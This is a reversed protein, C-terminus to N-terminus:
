AIAKTYFSRISDIMFEIQGDNLYQHLPLTMISKGYSESNVLDGVKYGLASAAKQLHLPVKYHIKAEIGRDILYELLKDRDLFKAMYLSFTHKYGDRRLPLLVQDPLTSLGDDMRKALKNRAEVTQDVTKLVKSAVVAQLPQLRMNVGWISNNDRDIMGHNRYMRMWKALDPDDTSVMGGDGMVNLPKLPHMSWASVDGFTGSRKNNIYGGPAMCADEIVKLNYKKAVQVLTNMEPSEGGWYVPLIAKTKSTIAKEIGAVNIQYADDIDVFVPKAGVAVIAGISAYFTTSVSIVEDGPGIGCAKLSLILADTGNNTSIVYKSGIFEAFENEFKEVYPGLTFETSNILEKWESFIEETDSFQMPLYNYPVKM